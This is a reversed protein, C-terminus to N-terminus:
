GLGGDAVLLGPYEKQLFEEWDPVELRIETRAGTAVAGDRFSFLIPDANQLIPKEGLRGCSKTLGSHIVLQTVSERKEFLGCSPCCAQFWGSGSFPSGAAGLVYSAQACTPCARTFRGSSWSDLLAGLYPHGGGGVMILGLYVSPFTVLSHLKSAQIKEKDRLFKPIAQPWNVTM